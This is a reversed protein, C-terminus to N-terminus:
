RVKEKQPVRETGAMSMIVKVAGMYDGWPVTRQARWDADSMGLHWDSDMGPIIVIEDSNRHEAVYFCWYREPQNPRPYPFVLEGNKDQWFTFTFGNERCNQYPDVMIEYGSDAECSALYSEMASVVGEVAIYSKSFKSM